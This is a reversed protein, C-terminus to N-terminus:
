TRDEEDDLTGLKVPICSPCFEEETKETKFGKIRYKM